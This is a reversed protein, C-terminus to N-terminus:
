CCPWFGMCVSLDEPNCHLTTNLCNTYTRRGKEKEKTSLITTKQLRIYKLRKRRNNREEKNEALNIKEKSKEGNEKQENGNNGLKALKADILLARWGEKWMIYINIWWWFAFKVADTRYMKRM